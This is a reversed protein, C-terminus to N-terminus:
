TIPRFIYRSDYPVDNRRLFEQYEEQFSRRRHHNEQNQIYKIVTGLHSHSVSFAGFGQQWSFRCGFWRQENMHNTSGTKMKGALDSVSENPKLGILVHAHDPMYNIAILKQKRQRVIGSMYKQLEEKHHGQIVCARASVVFVVHVYLQTYTNAMRPSM